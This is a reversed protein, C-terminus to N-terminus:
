SFFYVSDSVSTINFEGKEPVKSFIHFAESDKDQVYHKVFFNQLDELIPQSYLSIFQDRCIKNMIEVTSPHTWYCDHISAFTLGAQECFQATLMMHTSDLSHVFNPPFANRQKM